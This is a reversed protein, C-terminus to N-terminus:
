VRFEWNKIGERIGQGLIVQPNSKKLEKQKTFSM